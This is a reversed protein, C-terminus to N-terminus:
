KLKLYVIFIGKMLFLKDMDCKINADSINHCASCKGLLQSDIPFYVDNGVASINLHISTTERKSTCQSSVAESKCITQCETSIWKEADRMTTNECVRHEFKNFLDIAHRICRKFTTLEEQFSNENLCSLRQMYCITILLFYIEKM